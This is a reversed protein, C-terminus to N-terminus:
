KGYYKNTVGFNYVAAVAGSTLSLADSYFTGSQAIAVLGTAADSNCIWFVTGTGSNAPALTLSEWGPTLGLPAPRPDNPDFRAALAIQAADMRSSVALLGVQTWDGRTLRAIGEATREFDPRAASSAAVAVGFAALVAPAVALLRHGRVARGMRVILSAPDFRM